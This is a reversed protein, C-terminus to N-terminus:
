SDYNNKQQQQKSVIQFCQNDETIDPTGIMIKHNDDTIDTTGIM